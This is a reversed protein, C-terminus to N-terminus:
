HRHTIITKDVGFIKSDNADHIFSKPNHIYVKGESICVLKNVKNTIVGIDHSVMALTIGLETNLKDMLIYFDDQSKSDIGVLPEDMFIIEPDNILLRAIFVRQQQGGSLNGILRHKYDQMNVALLANDIKERISPTIRKLFGMKSYMGVGVVEEVTAPFTLNFNRVQQSLYGVRSWENFNNIDTGFMEIKGRDPKLLGLILKLLTSKASGNSGVIGVYEGKSIQINVDDLVKNKGYSFDMNKINVIIEPM